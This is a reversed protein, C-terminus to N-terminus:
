YITWNEMIMIWISNEPSSEIVSLLGIMNKFLISLNDLFIIKESIFWEKILFHIDFVQFNINYILNTGTYLM